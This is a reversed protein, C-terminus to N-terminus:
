VGLPEGFCSVAEEAEDTEEAEEEEVAEEVSLLSSIASRRNRENTGANWPSRKSCDAVAVFPPNARSM